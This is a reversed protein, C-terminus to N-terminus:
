AEEMRCGRPDHKEVVDIYHCQMDMVGGYDDGEFYTVGWAIGCTACRCHTPEDPRPARTPRELSLSVDEGLDDM